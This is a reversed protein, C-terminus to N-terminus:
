SGGSVGICYYYGVFLESDCNAGNLGLVTNWAYLNATTVGHEQAFGYCTDGSVAEAYQNCNSAVGSQIPSPVAAQRQQLTSPSGPAGICYYTNAWFDSSCNAGGAGLVPNWTYLQTPTINNETAFNSCTDGSVAESYKTCQPDIGSQVPSPTASATPNTTLTTTTSTPSSGPAGVCYYTNAWFDSSCNAGGTGLIPNWTYLQSPTINNESAFSSCTDGSVAEFYKTCQPDIGSQVPSPTPSGTPSTTSTTTTSTTASGALGICYWYGAFFQTTCNEGNPGLVPNLTEFQQQTIGFDQSFSYCGDGSQAQAYQDCTAPIGSQTPSPPTGGPQVLTSNRSSGGVGGSGTPTGSGDGGGRQDGTSTTVNTPPSIYTGGPAGTCVYQETTNDCIGILNPNWSLFQTTTVTNNGIAPLTAVFQDSRENITDTLTM